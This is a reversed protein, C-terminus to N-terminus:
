WIMQKDLNFDSPFPQLKEGVTLLYNLAGDGEQFNSKQLASLLFSPHSLKKVITGALQADVVNPYVEKFVPEAFSPVFLEVFIFVAQRADFFYSNSIYKHENDIYFRKKTRHFSSKLLLEGMNQRCAIVIHPKGEEYVGAVFGRFLDWDERLISCGNASRHTISPFLPQSTLKLLRQLESFRPSSKPLYKKVKSDNMLPKLRAIYEKELKDLDAISTPIYKITIKDLGQRSFQKYRHHTGGAWRSRLNKAKGIYLLHERENVVFYIGPSDPLQHRQRLTFEGACLLFDIM